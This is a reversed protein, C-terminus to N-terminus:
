YVLKFTSLEDDQDGDQVLLYAIPRCQGVSVGYVNQLVQNEILPQHDVAPAKPIGYFDEM